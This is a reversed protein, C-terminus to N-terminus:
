SSNVKEKRNDMPYQTSTQSAGYQIIEVWVHHLYPFKCNHYSPPLDWGMGIIKEMMKRRKVGIM